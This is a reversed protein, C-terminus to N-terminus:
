PTASPPDLSLRWARSFDARTMNAVHGDGMLVNYRRLRYEDEGHWSGHGDALVNIEAPGYEVPPKKHDYGMLDVKRRLTLETRYYYSMGFAEFSSPQANLPERSIDTLDFGIDAPCHWVERSKLYPRLVFTLPALQDVEAEFKGDAADHWADTHIDTPDGGRPFLGDNDQQYLTVAAGLQKLNSICATQYGRRRVANFAPFIMAALVGIIGLVILIELLTFGCRRTKM